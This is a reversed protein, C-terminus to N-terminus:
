FVLNVSSTNLSTDESITFVESEQMAAAHRRIAANRRSQERSIYMKKEVAPKGQDACLEKYRLKATWLHCLQQRHKVELDSVVQNINEYFTDVMGNIDQFQLM